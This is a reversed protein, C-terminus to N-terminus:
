YVKFNLVVSNAANAKLESFCLASFQKEIASKLENNLTVAVVHNVEGSENVTFIVRVKESYGSKKLSEPLTIKSSITKGADAGAPIAATMIGTSMFAALAVLAIKRKLTKM